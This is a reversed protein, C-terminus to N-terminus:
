ISHTLVRYLWKIRKVLSWYRVEFIWYGIRYPDKGIFWAAIWEDGMEVNRLFRAKAHESPKISHLLEWARADGPLVDIDQSMAIAKAKTWSDLFDVPSLGTGHVLIGKQLFELM